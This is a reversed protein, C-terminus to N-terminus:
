ASYTRLTTSPAGIKQCAKLRDAVGKLLLVILGRNADIEEAAVDEMEPVAGKLLANIEGEIAKGDWRKSGTSTSLCFRIVDPVRIKALKDAQMKTKMVTAIADKLEKARSYEEDALLYDSALARMEADEVDIYDTSFDADAFKELYQDGRCTRRHLCKNCRKDGDALRAPLPLSEDMVLDWAAETRALLDACLADDRLMPFWRLEFSNPEMVAFVGWKYGTVAMAHQLQLIYHPHREFGAQLFKKFDFQNMTKCELAGPGPSAGQFDLLTFGESDKTLEYLHAYDVAVIQRDMNVRAHPHTKSVRAPQRRIKFGTEDAFENAVLDEMKTGRRLIKEEAETRHYDPAIGRKELILKRYCGYGESYLSSAESGGVGLAREQHWSAPHLDGVPIFPNTSM